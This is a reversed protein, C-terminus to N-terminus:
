ITLLDKEKKDGMAQIKEHYKDVTEQLSKEQRFSDDESIKKDKEQKKLNKIVEERINKISIKAEEVKKNVIKVLEKRKEETLSPFNIRIINGSVVPNLDLNALRISKEVDKIINKDWPQIALTQPEPTNISALQNLPTKTGYCEVLINEVISPMARGTRVNSLDKELHEIIKDFKVEEM